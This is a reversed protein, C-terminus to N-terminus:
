SRAPQRTASVYHTEGGPRAVTDLQGRFVLDALAMRVVEESAEVGQHPLWWRTIGLVTDCSDPHREMYQLIANQITTLDVDDAQGGRTDSDENVGGETALCLGCNREEKNEIPDPHHGM